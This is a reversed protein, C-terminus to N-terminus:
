AGTTQAGASREGPSDARRGRARGVSGRGDCGAGLTRSSRSVGRQTPRSPRLPVPSKRQGLLPINKRALSSPAFGTSTTSSIRGFRARRRLCSASDNIARMERSWGRSRKKMLLTRGPRSRRSIPPFPPEYLLGTWSARETLHEVIMDIFEIQQPPRPEASSVRRLGLQRRGPRARGALSYFPRLRPENADREIDGAEGIGADLLM